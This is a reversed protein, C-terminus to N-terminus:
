LLDILLPDRQILCYGKDQSSAQIPGFLRSCVGGSGIACCAVVRIAAIAGGIPDSLPWITPKLDLDQVLVSRKPRDQGIVFFSISVIKKLMKRRKPAGMQLRLQVKGVQNLFPLREEESVFNFEDQVVILGPKL